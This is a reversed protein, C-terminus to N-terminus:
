NKFLEQTGPRLLIHPALRRRSGHRIHTGLGRGAGEAMSREPSGIWTRGPRRCRPRAKTNRAGPKRSPRYKKGTNIGRRSRPAVHHRAPALPNSRVVDDIALRDGEDDDLEHGLALARDNELAALIPELRPNREGVCRLHVM